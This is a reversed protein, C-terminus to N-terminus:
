QKPVVTKTEKVETNIANTKQHCPMNCKTKSNPCIKTCNTSSEKATCKAKTQEPQTTTNETTKTEPATTTQNQVKNQEMTAAVSQRTAVKKEAPIRTITTQASVSSVGFFSILGMLAFFLTIKKM